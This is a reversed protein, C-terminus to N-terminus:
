MVAVAISRKTDTVICGLCCLRIVRSLHACPLPSSPSYASGIPISFATRSSALASDRGGKRKGGRAGRAIGAITIQSSATKAAPLPVTWWAWGYHGPQLIDGVGPSESSTGSDGCIGAYRRVYFPLAITASGRCIASETATIAIPSERNHDLRDGTRIRDDVRTSTAAFRCKRGPSPFQFWRRMEGGNPCRHAGFGLTGVRRRLADTRRTAGDSRLEEDVATSMVM